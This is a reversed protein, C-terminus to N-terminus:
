HAEYTGTILLDIGLSTRLPQQVAPNRAILERDRQIETQLAQLEQPDKVILRENSALSDAVSTALLNRDGGFEQVGVSLGQPRLTISQDLSQGWTVHLRKDEFGPRGIEIDFDRELAALTGQDMVMSVRAKSGGDIVHLYVQLPGPPSAQIDPADRKLDAPIRVHVQVNQTKLDYKREIQEVIWSPAAKQIAEDTGEFQNSAVIAHKQDDVVDWLQVTAVPHRRITGLWVAVLGAAFIAVAVALWRRPVTKLLALASTIAGLLTSVVGLFTILQDSAM